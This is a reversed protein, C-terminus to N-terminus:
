LYFFSCPHLNEFGLEGGEQLRKVGRVGKSAGVRVERGVERLPKKERNGPVLTRSGVVGTILTRKGVVGM